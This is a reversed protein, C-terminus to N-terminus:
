FSHLGIKKLFFVECAGHLQDIQEEKRAVSQELINNKEKLNKIETLTEKSELKVTPGKPIEESHIAAPIQKIRQSLAEILEDDHKTKEELATELDFNGFHM